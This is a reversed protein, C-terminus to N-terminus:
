SHPYSDEFVASPTLVIIPIHRQSNRTKYNPYGTYIKAALEWYRAYEEGTAEYANYHDVRGNELSVTAQPHAKLNYYWSPNPGQGWNSAIVAIKHPQDPDRIAVLPHSRPLGSKAGTTTLTIIPVGSLISTASFRGHTRRLFFNDLPHAVHAFLWAGATSSGIKQMFTHVPRMM